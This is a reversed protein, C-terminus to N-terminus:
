AAEIIKEAASKATYVPFWRLHANDAEREIESRLDQLKRRQETGLTADDPHPTAAILLANQIGSFKSAGKLEWLRSRADKISNSHRIPHLVTFHIICNETYFGFKVPTGGQSIPTQKGFNQVLDPRSLRIVEKIETGFRKNSESQQPADSDEEEDTFDMRSLSSYLLCATRILDNESIAETFRLEGAHLGANSFNLAEVSQLAKAINLYTSLSYDILKIIGVSSKGFMNALIDDRIVRRAYFDNDFHYIVAVMIREGTGSVPEWYFPRWPHINQQSTTNM